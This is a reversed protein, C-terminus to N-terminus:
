GPPLAPLDHGLMQGVGRTVALIADRIPASPIVAQLVLGLMAGIFAERWDVRGLRDAADALYDLRADLADFQAETLQHQARLLHKVESLQERVAVKETETFPTNLEINPEGGVLDGERRLEGWLDPAELERRVYGLWESLRPVVVADWNGTGYSDVPKDHGPSYEVWYQGTQRHRLAPCRVGNSTEFDGVLEFERPEFGADTLRQFVDVEQSRLLPLTSFAIRELPSWLAAPAFGARKGL